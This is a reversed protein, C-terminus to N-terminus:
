GVFEIDEGELLADLEALAIDREEETQFIFEIDKLAGMNKAGVAIDENIIIKYEYNRTTINLGEKTSIMTVFDLQLRRGMFRLFKTKRQEFMKKLTNSLDEEEDHRGLEINVEMLSDRIDEDSLYKWQDVISKINPKGLKKLIESIEVIIEADVTSIPNIKFEKPKFAQYRETASKLHQKM